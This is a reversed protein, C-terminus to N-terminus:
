LPEPRRLEPLSAVVHDPFRSVSFQGARASLIPSTMEDPSVEHADRGGADVLTAFDGGAPQWLLLGDTDDRIVRMAQTWMLWQGRVYRRTITQGPVFRM